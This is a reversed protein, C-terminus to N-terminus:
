SAPTPTSNQKPTTPDSSTPSTTSKAATIRGNATVNDAERSFRTQNIPGPSICKILCVILQIGGAEAQQVASDLLLLGNAGTNTSPQGNEWQQYYVEGDDGWAGLLNNSPDKMIWAAVRSTANTPIQSRYAPIRLRIVTYGIEQAAKIADPIFGQDTAGVTLTTLLANLHPNSTKKRTWANTGAFSYPKGNLSFQLGNTTVFQATSSTSLLLSTALCALKSISFM